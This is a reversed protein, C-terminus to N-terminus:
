GNNDENDIDDTQNQIDEPQIDLFVLLDSFYVSLRGIFTILAKKNTDAYHIIIARLLDNVAKLTTDIDDIDAIRLYISKKM